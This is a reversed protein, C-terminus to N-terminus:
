RSTNAAARFLTKEAASRRFIMGFVVLLALLLPWLEALPFEQVGLVHLLLVDVLLLLAVGAYRTRKRDPLFAAIANTPLAWLLNLNDRCIKHDTGLWMVLMFVGLLGTIFLFINGLARGARRTSPLLLLAIILASIALLTFFPASFPTYPPLVVRQPLLETEDQLIARGDAKGGGVAQALYAPLYMAQENTMTKDVPMGSLINIGFRQWPEATLHANFVQRFTLDNSQPIANGWELKGRVTKQLVDRVRTACNDYVSSYIYERNQPLLNEELLDRLHKAEEPKLNLVQERVSRGYHAYEAMFAATPDTALRYPLTGRAFRLEFNPASFDFTGYNYVIDTGASSDVLRIGNHGFSAGIFEVGPGCTLLSVRLGSGAKSTDPTQARAASSPAFFFLCLAWALRAGKSFPQSMRLTEAVAALHQLWTNETPARM